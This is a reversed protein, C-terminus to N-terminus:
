ATSTDASPKQILGTIALMTFSVLLVIHEIRQPVSFRTYSKQAHTDATQQAM